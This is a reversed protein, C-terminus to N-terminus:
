VAPTRSWLKKCLEPILQPNRSASAALFRLASPLSEYKRMYAAATLTHIGSARRMRSRYPQPLHESIVTAVEAARRKRDAIPQISWTAAAHLRYESMVEPLVSIPGQLSLLVAQPYDYLPLGIVWSPVSPFASHRWVLSSTHCPPGLICDDFSAWRTPVEIPLTGVPNSNADVVRTMHGCASLAPNAALETTVRTLKTPDCWRDDGELLAVLPTTVHAVAHAFNASMGLRRRPLLHRVRSDRNAHEAVLDSTGDDSRDDAVLVLNQGAYDQDLVSGIAAEISGVHNYTLVITTVDPLGTRPASM